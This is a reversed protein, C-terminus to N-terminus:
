SEGKEKEWFYIVVEDSSNWSDFFCGNEVAVVHGNLALLYIGEPHEDAFNKVTYCAPCSDPILHRKFGNDMLYRGWVHNASPLDALMFGYVALMIYTKEWTQNLVKSIARIVCDGVRAAKPNPNYNVYM